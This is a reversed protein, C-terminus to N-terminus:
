GKRKNKKNAKHRLRLLRFVTYIGWAIDGIDKYKYLKNTIRSTELDYEDPNIYEGSGDEAECLLKELDFENMAARVIGFLKRNGSLGFQTWQGEYLWTVSFVADMYKDSPLEEYLEDLVEGVLEFYNYENEADDDNDGIVHSMHLDFYERVKAADNALIAEKMDKKTVNKKM